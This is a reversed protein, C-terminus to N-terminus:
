RRTVLRILGIILAAGTAIAMTPFGRVLLTAVTTLSFTASPALGINVAAVAVFVLPPAVVVSFVDRRRVLSAGLVASGALAGLTVLGLGIGLFSDIGAGALTLLFMVLVVVFGRLRGGRVEAPATRGRAPTGSRSEAARSGPRRQEARARDAARGRPAEARLREVRYPEEGRGREQAAGSMPRAARESGSMREPRPNRSAAHPRDPRAGSQRWADATGATAM